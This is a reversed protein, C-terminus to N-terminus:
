AVEARAAAEAAAEFALLISGHRAPFPRAPALLDLGPWRGCDEREGSLWARLADRGEAIEASTRGIAHGGLLAASAQGFACASVEQGLEVVRGERDLVVDVSVRSGCLPSRREASGQPHDLRGVCPISAALRLIDRTYLTSPV